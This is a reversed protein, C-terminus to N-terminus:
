FHSVKVLCAVTKERETADAKENDCHREIMEKFDKLSVYGDHNLDMQKFYTKLKRVLFESM